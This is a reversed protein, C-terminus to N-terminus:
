LVPRARRPKLPRRALARLYYATGHPPLEHPMHRWSIGTRNIYLLTNVVGRLDTHAPEGARKALRAQQWATLTPEILAWRADFRLHPSVARV